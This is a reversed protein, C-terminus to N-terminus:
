IQHGRAGKARCRAELAKFLCILATGSGNMDFCKRAARM